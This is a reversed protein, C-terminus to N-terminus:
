FYEHHKQNSFLYPGILPSSNLFPPYNHLPPNVAPPPCERGVWIVILLLM